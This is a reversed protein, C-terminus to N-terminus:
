AFKAPWYQIPPCHIFVKFAYIVMILLPLILGKSLLVPELQASFLYNGSLALSSLMERPLEILIPPAVILCLIFKCPLPLLCSGCERATFFLQELQIVTLHTTEHEGHKARTSELAHLFATAPALDRFVFRLTAKDRGTLGGHPLVTLTRKSTAVSM